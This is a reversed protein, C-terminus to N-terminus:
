IALELWGNLFRTFAPHISLQSILSHHSFSSPANCTCGVEVVSIVRFKPRAELVKKDMLMEDCM